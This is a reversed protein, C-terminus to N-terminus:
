LKVNPEMGAEELQKSLLKVRENQRILERRLIIHQKRLTLVEKRTQDYLERWAGIALSLSNAELSEAQALEHQAEALNQEAEARTKAVQADKMRRGAYLGLAGTIASLLLGLIGILNDLTM